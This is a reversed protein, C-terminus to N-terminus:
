FALEVSNNADQITVSGGELLMVVEMMVQGVKKTTIALAEDKTDNEFSDSIKQIEEKTLNYKKFGLWSTKKM